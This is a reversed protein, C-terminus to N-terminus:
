CPPMRLGSFRIASSAPSRPASDLRPLCALESDVAAENRRFEPRLTAEATEHLDRDRLIKLPVGYCLVVYRIKSAVVKRAVRLPQGNTGPLEGSGLVCNRAPWSKPSPLKCIM